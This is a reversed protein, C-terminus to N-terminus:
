PFFRSEFHKDLWIEVPDSKQTISIKEDEM